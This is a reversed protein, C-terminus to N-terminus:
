LSSRLSLRQVSWFNLICTPGLITCLDVSSTKFVSRRITQPSHLCNISPHSPDRSLGRVHITALQCPSPLEICNIFSHLNPMFLIYRKSIQRRLQHVQTQAEPIYSAGCPTWCKACAGLTAQGNVQGCGCGGAAFPRRMGQKNVAGVKSCKAIDPTQAVQVSM